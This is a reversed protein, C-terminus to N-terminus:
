SKQRIQNLLEAQTLIDKSYKTFNRATVTRYFDKLALVCQNAPKVDFTKYVDQQELIVKTALNPPVAYARGVTIKGKTGWIEYCSQYFSNFSFRIYARQYTKSVLTADGRIDVKSKQDHQLFSGTVKLVNARSKLPLM